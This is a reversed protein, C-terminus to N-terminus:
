ENCYVVASHNNIILKELAKVEGPSSYDGTVVDPRKKVVLV